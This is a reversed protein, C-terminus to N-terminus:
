KTVGFKAQLREYEKRDREDQAAEWREENAIREAMQEDTETHNQFVYLYETDTWPAQYPKIEATPGYEAILADLQDRASQLTTYELDVSEAPTTTIKRERNVM